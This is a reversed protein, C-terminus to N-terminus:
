EVRLHRLGGGGGGALVKSEQALSKGSAKLM